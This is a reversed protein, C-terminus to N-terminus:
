WSAQYFFKVHWDPEDPHVAYTYCYKSAKIDLQGIIFELQKKTEELDEWYYDDYATGGFFFGEQTPLFEEALSHDALVIKIIDILEFIQELDVEYLGCNDNGGQVNEVFWRHIQNAKRWYAVNGCNFSHENISLQLDYYNKDEITGAFDDARNKIALALPRSNTMLFMDLGM